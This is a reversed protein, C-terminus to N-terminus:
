RAALWDKLASAPVLVRRGARKSAIDGQRLLKRCLSMSIGLAAAVEKRSLAVLETNPEISRAPEIATTTM